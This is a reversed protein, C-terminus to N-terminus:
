QLNKKREYILMYANQFNEFNYSSGKSAGGFCEKEIDNTDFISIHSDNFKLWTYKKEEKDKNDDKDKKNDKDLLINGKGDREVNILSFYHGGDASGMHINIGKLEYNYYDDEKVYIDESEFQKGTIQQVIDEICFEKLNINLPFEFRSNIKETREIEYNMYFRKLQIVLVNPLDCLTTRKSITVKQNCADCKFDDIKEPMIMKQLSDYLNTINKVEMTLNYFEEFRNSVNKCSECIVSSCTRGTFADNIIYKYKTKKLCNEIKDCFNNYFEQSDQQIMPNTPNGDFDKYSYCFYKPNYDEKQSFTLYTYM